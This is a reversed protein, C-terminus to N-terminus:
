LNFAWVAETGDNRTEKAGNQKKERDSRRLHVPFANKKHTDSKPFRENIIM